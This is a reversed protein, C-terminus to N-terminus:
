NLTFRSGNVATAVLPDAVPNVHRLEGHVANGEVWLAVITRRNLVLGPQADLVAMSGGKFADFVAKFRDRNDRVDSELRILRAWTGSNFYYGNASRRRLARELHTHGAVIFDIEAGVWSDLQKFTDDEASFDFSRDKDLQELADALVEHTPKGRMLKWAAGILGLYEGQEDGDILALAQEGKRFRQETRDLLEHAYNSTMKTEGWAPPLQLHAPTRTAPEESSLFGSAMRLKDRGMRRVSAGIRHVREWVGPDLAIMTPVVGEAEPKLLDVFPYERKILNMVDIVLQTGANPIWREVARGHSLDRGIRRLREYDAVNWPDVENGHLCLVKAEKVRCLFGAGDM